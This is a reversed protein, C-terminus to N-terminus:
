NMNLVENLLHMCFVKDEKQKDVFDTAKGEAVKYIIVNNRRIEKDKEAKVFEKTEKMRTKADEISNEIEDFDGKM